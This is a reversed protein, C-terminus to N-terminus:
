PSAQSTLFLESVSKLVEFSSALTEPHSKVHNEGPHKICAWHLLINPTSPIPQQKSLGREKGEVFHPHGFSRGRTDRAHRAQAGAARSPLLHGQLQKDLFYFHKDFPATSAGGKM